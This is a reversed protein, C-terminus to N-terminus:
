FKHFQQIRDTLGYAGDNPMFASPTAFADFQSPKSMKTLIWYTANEKSGDVASLTYIPEIRLGDPVVTSATTEDMEGVVSYKPLLFQKGERSLVFNIYKSGFSYGNLSAARKPEIMNKVRIEDNDLMLAPSSRKFCYSLLQKTDSSCESLIERTTKLLYEGNSNVRFRSLLRPLQDVEIQEIAMKLTETLVREDNRNSEVLQFLTDNNNLELLRFILYSRENVGFANSYFGYGRVIPNGFKAYRYGDLGVLAWRGADDALSQVYPQLFGYASQVLEIFRVAEDHVFSKYNSNQLFCCSYLIATLKNIRDGDFEKVSWRLYRFPNFDDISRSQELHTFMWLDFLSIAYIPALISAVTNGHIIECVNRISFFDIFSQKNSIRQTFARIENAQLRWIGNCFFNLIFPYLERSQLDSVTIYIGRSDDMENRRAVLREALYGAFCDLVFNSKIFPETLAISSLDADLKFPLKGPKFVDTIAESTRFYRFSDHPDIAYNSKGGCILWETLNILEAINIYSNLFPEFQLIIKEWPAQSNAHTILENLVTNFKVTLDSEQISLQTSTQASLLDDTKNMEANRLEIIKGENLMSNFFGRWTTDSIEVEAANLPTIGQEKYLTEYCTDFWEELSAYYSQMSSESYSDDFQFPFGYILFTFLYAIYPILDFLSEGSSNYFLPRFVDISYRNGNLTIYRGSNLWNNLVGNLKSLVPEYALSMQRERIMRAWEFIVGVRSGGSSSKSLLNDFMIYLAERNYSNGVYIAYFLNLATKGAFLDARRMMASYTERIKQFGSGTLASWFSDVYNYDTRNRVTLQDNREDFISLLETAM